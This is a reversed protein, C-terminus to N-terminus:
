SARELLGRLLANFEAPHTLNVVHGGGQIETMEAGPISGALERCPGLSGSDESGAVIRVPMTLRELEAALDQGAPLKAIVRRLVAALASPPHELFGQRILAGQTANFRAVGGWAYRNGAADLGESEIAAAFGLAWEVQAPDLRTRPCSALLLGAVREPHRLAYALVIAAGMSLGGLVVRDAGAGAVVRALDEVFCDLEYAEPAAPAESRAHGRADFAIVTAM